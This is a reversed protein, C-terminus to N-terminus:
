PREVIKLKGTKGYVIKIESKPIKWEKSLFRILEDNAKGEVPPAKIRIKLVDGERGVIESKKANPQIKVTIKVLIESAGKTM